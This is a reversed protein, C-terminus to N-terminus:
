TLVWADPELRELTRLSSQNGRLSRGILNPQPFADGGGCELAAARKKHRVSKRHGMVSKMTKLAIACVVCRIWCGPVLQWVGPESSFLEQPFIESEVRRRISRSVPHAVACQSKGATARRKHIDTRRHRQVSAFSEFSSGCCCCLYRPPSGVLEWFENFDERLRNLSDNASTGSM